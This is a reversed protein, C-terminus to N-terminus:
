PAFDVPRAVGRQHLRPGPRLVGAQAHRQDGREADGRGASGENDFPVLSLAFQRVQDVM